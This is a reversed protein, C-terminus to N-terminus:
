KSNSKPVKLNKRNTHGLDTLLNIFRTYGPKMSRTQLFQIKNAL